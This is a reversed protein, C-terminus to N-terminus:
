VQHKWLLDHLFQLGEVTKPSDYTLKTVLPGDKPDHPEGGNNWIWTVNRDASAFSMDFAWREGGRRNLKTLYELFKARDWSEDPYPLGAENLHGRNVFMINTNLYVPIGLQKGDIKFAEYPGKFFDDVDATKWDKKIYKDLELALGSIMFPRVYTCCLWVIEPLTNSLAMATYKEYRKGWDPDPFNEVVPTIKGGHKATLRKAFEENFADARPTGVDNVWRVTVPQASTGPREAGEPAGPAGCAALVASVGAAGGVAMVRSLQARRTTRM